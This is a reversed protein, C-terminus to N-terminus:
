SSLFFSSHARAPGPVAGLQSTPVQSTLSSSHCSMPLPEQMSSWVARVNADVPGAWSKKPQPQLHSDLTQLGMPLSHHM